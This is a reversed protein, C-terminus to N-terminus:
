QTPEEEIKSAHPSWNWGPAAQYTSVAGAPVYIHEISTRLANYSDLATIESYETFRKLYITKLNAADFAYAGISTVSAPITISSSYFYQFAAEEITTLTSPLTITVDEDGFSSFAKKEITTKNEPIVISKVGRVGSFISEGFTLNDSDRAEFIISTLKTCQAFASNDITTVSSPITLEVNTTISDDCCCNSFASEGITTVKGPLNIILKGCSYFAKDGITVLNSPLQVNTLETCTGFANSGITVLSSPLQVNTLQKCYYFMGEPLETFGEPIEAETFTCAYFLNTGYTINPDLIPIGNTFPNTGFAMGGITTVTTPIDLELLKCGGFASAGFSIGGM